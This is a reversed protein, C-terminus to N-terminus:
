SDVCFIEDFDTWLRQSMRHVSGVFQTVEMAVSISYDLSSIKNDCM